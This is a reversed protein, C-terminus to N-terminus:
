FQIVKLSTLHVTCAPIPFDLNIKYARALHLFTLSCMLRHNRNLLYDIVRQTTRFVNCNIQSGVDIVDLYKDPFAILLLSIKIDVENGM